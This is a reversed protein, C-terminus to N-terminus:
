AHKIFNLSASNMCYRQGTPKPGDDFVHGLHADCRRCSVANRQMGFSRDSSTAVNEEAIPQYFSPWGTGSEFKTASDFLATGCCICRYLGKDHENWYKGTFAMETDDHRTIDFANPTLQKRWEAESKVVKPVKVTQKREGSDSFEVITVEQPTSTAAEAVIAEDNHINRMFFYFGGGIVIASGLFARRTTKGSDGEQPETITEKGM